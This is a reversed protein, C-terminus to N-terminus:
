GYDENREGNEWHGMQAENKRGTYFVVVFRKRGEEGFVLFGRIFFCRRAERTTMSV